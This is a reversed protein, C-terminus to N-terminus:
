QIESISGTFTVTPIFEPQNQTNLTQPLLNQARHERKGGWTNMELCLLMTDKKRGKSDDAPRDVSNGRFMFVATAYYGEPGLTLPM